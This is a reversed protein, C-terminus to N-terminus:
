IILYIEIEEYRSIRLAVKPFRIFGDCIICRAKRVIMYYKEGKISLFFFFGGHDVARTSPPQVTRSKIM